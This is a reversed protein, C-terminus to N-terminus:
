GRMETFPAHGAALAELLAGLAAREAASVEHARGPFLEARLRARAAGLEAATEAFASLPIWPDADAGTLLVPMGGLDARPRADGPRGVRAGTLAALAGRWPGAAFAVELALCAGQSFGGLLLPTERGAAARAAALDRAVQARAAALEAETAPTLPEVARAAYWLRGAARPLVWAVGALGLLPRVVAAEMEEPSQGRGHLFLALVRASAPPAGLLLPADPAAPPM